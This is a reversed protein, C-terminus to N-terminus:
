KNEDTLFPAIPSHRSLVHHLSTYPVTVDPSGIAYPGVQYEDFQIVLGEPAIGWTNFNNANPSTGALSWDDEYQLVEKLKSRSASSVAQLYKARPQFLDSLRLIRGTKLDFNLSEYSVVPHFAWPLSHVFFVSVLNKDAYNISCTTKVTNDGYPIENNRQRKHLIEEGQRRYDAVKREVLSSVAQNFVEAFRNQRVRIQPYEAEIRYYKGAQWVLKKEYVGVSGTAAIQEQLQDSNELMAAFDKVIENQAFNYGVVAGGKEREWLRFRYAQVVL